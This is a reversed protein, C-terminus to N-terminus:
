VAAVPPAEYKRIRFSVGIENAINRCAELNVGPYDVVTLIVKPVYDKARRAFDLMAPYAAEGWKSRCLKNYEAANHANLSISVTDLLGALDPWVDRGHILNALGNTDLRIPIGFPRLAKAVAVVVDLRMIPEGYGCFVIEEYGTPDGVAQLIQEVDPEVKLWLQTDGIGDGNQRICFVCDNPCRNTINLYLKKGINYAITM